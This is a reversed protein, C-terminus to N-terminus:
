AHGGDWMQEYRQKRGLGNAVEAPRLQGQYRYYIDTPNKGVRKISMLMNTM